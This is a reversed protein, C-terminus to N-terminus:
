LWWKKGAMFIQFLGNPKSYAVDPLVSLLPKVKNQTLKRHNIFPEKNNGLFIMQNMKRGKSIKNIKMDEYILQLGM